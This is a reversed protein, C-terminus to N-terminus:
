RRAVRKRERERGEDEVDMSVDGQESAYGVFSVLGEKEKQGAAGHARTRRRSTGTSNANVGINGISTGATIKYAFGIM